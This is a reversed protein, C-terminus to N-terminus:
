VSAKNLKELRQGTLSVYYGQLDATLCSHVPLIGVLQGIKLSSIFAGSGKIIGHEQSLRDVVAVSEPTWNEENLKVVTGFSESKAASIYDKSFHVAGGYVVAENRAPHISVVPCAMCVAIDSISCVNFSHQMTDYFVFNGPRIEDVGPFRDLLTCTPTDGYSIKLQPINILQRVKHLYAMSKEFIRSTKSKDTKQYSHGAHVLLGVLRHKPNESLAVRRIEDIEEPQLGTRHTGVDVKIYYDLRANVHANLHDLSAKSTILVSLKIDKALKEIVSHELPNYPFAITIDKWGAMAFYRAMDASSVTAKTIGADLFWEGIDASQHTKFHPRLTINNKAAKEAMRRINKRVIDENVLLTPKTLILHM